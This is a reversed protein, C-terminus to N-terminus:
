VVIVGINLYTTHSLIEIIGDGEAKELIWIGRLDVQIIFMGVLNVKARFTIM